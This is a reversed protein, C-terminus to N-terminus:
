ACRVAGAYFHRQSEERRAHQVRVACATTLKTTRGVTTEAAPTKNRNGRPTRSAPYCAGLDMTCTLRGLKKKLQERSGYRPCRSKDRPKQTLPALFHNFEVAVCSNTCPGDASYFLRRGVILDAINLATASQVTTAQMRECLIYHKPLNHNGIVCENSTAQSTSDSAHIRHRSLSLLTTTVFTSQLM